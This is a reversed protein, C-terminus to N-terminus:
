SYLRAFFMDRTSQSILWFEANCENFLDLLIAYQKDSM